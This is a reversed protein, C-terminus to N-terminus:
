SRPAGARLRRHVETGRQGPQHRDRAPPHDGPILRKGVDVIKKILRDFIEACKSAVYLGGAWVVDVHELFAQAAEGTWDSMVLKKANDGLNTLITNLMGGVDSWAAGNAKIRNFNGTLPEISGRTKGEMAETITQPRHTDMGAYSYASSILGNSM